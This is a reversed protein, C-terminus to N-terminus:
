EPAEEATVARPTSVESMLAPYSKGLLDHGVRARETNDPIRWLLDLADLLVTAADRANGSVDRTAIGHDAWKTDDLTKAIRKIVAAEGFKRVEPAPPAEVPAEAVEAFCDADIVYPSDDEWLSGVPVTGFGPADHEITCVKM